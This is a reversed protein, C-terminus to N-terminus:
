LNSDDGPFSLVNQSVSVPLDFLKNIRQKSGYKTPLIAAMLESHYNQLTTNLRKDM